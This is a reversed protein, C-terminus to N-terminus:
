FMVAWCVVVVGAFAPRRPGTRPAAGGRRAGRLGHILARLSFRMGGAVGAVRRLGVASGRRESQARRRRGLGIARWVGRRATKRAGGLRGSVSRGAGARGANRTEGSLLVLRSWCEKRACRGM